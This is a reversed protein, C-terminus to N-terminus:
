FELEVKSYEPHRFTENMAAAVPTPTVGFIKPWNIVPFEDPTVLAKLQHITFPPDRDFLSWLWLLVYFFSYPIKLLPTSANSSLKVQRILDIYDIKELGSIDFVGNTEPKKLCAIIINAFDGAYLPQRMYRGNGPIPFVPVKRMFRALWGLHKRDFWGFMLTPRLIVAEARERKILEEQATKSRTYMDDAASNVVSSSIHVLRPVEYHTMTSLVNQSADLNNRKFEEEQLGGIQAQLMIVAAAGEFHQEWPGSNALNAEICVVDPHMGRLIELNSAHKDIVVLDTHGAAKLRPILNQGVLGAGGPLIIKERKSM